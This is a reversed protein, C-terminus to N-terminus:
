AYNVGLARRLEAPTAGIEGGRKVVRYATAKNVDAAEGIARYSLGAAHLAVIRSDRGSNRARRSEAGILQLMRKERSDPAPRQFHRGWTWNAVSRAIKRVESDPFNRRTPLRAAYLITQRDIM